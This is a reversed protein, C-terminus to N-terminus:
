THGYMFAGHEEAGGQQTSTAVESVKAGSFETGSLSLLITLVAASAAFFAIDDM